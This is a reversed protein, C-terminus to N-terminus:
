AAPGTPLPPAPAVTAPLQPVAAATAPGVTGGIRADAAVATLLGVLMGFTFYGLLAEFAAIMRIDAPATFDGYGLTTWTVVSFYLSTSHPDTAMAEAPMGILGHGQYIGAFSYIVAISQLFIFVLTKKPGLRLLAFAILNAVTAACTAKAVKYCYPNADGVFVSPDDWAQWALYSNTALPLLGFVCGVTVLQRRPTGFFFQVLRSSLLWDLLDM